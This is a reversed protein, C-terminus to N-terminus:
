VLQNHILEIALNVQDVTLGVSKDPKVVHGEFKGRHKQNAAGELLELDDLAVWARLQYDKDNQEQQELWQYIELQRSSLLAPDTTDYFGPFSRLLEASYEHFQDLVSQELTADVRWSSALVVAVDDDVFADLLVSLAHLKQQPFVHEPSPSGFPLLVGDIDLFIVIRPTPKDKNNRYHSKPRLPELLGVLSLGVLCCAITLLLLCGCIIITVFRRRKRRSTSVSKSPTENCEELAQLISRLQQQQNLRSSSSSSSLSLSLSALQAQLRQRKISCNNINTDLAVEFAAVWDELDLHLQQPPPSTMSASKSHDCPDDHHCITTTSTGEGQQEDHDEMLADEKVLNLTAGAKTPVLEIENGPVSKCAQLSIVVRPVTSAISSPVRCRM